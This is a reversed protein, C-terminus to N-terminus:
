ELPGVREIAKEGNVTRLIVCGELLDNITRASIWFLAMERMADPEPPSGTHEICADVLALIAHKPSPLDILEHINM